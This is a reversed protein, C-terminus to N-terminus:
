QSITWGTQDIDISWPFLSIIGQSIWGVRARMENTGPEVFRTVDGAPEIVISADTTSATRSDVLEYSDTDYNFLEVRQNLNITNSRAELVFSLDTPTASPSTAVVEVWVPPETPNLTIGAGVELYANDSDILEALGGGELFGRLITFSDPSVEVALSEKVYQGVWTNWGGASITYEHFGWFTGLAAPDNVTKSYDGWRGSTSQSTSQRVFEIPDFHGLPDGANRLARSM